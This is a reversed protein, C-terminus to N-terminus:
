MKKGMHYPFYVGDKVTHFHCRGHCFEESLDLRVRPVNGDDWGIVGGLIGVAWRGFVRRGTGWRVDCVLMRMFSISM